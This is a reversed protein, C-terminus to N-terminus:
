EVVQHWDQSISKQVYAFSLRVVRDVLECLVKELTTQVYGVWVGSGVSSFLILFM